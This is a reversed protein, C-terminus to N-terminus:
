HTVKPREDDTEEAAEEEDDDDTVAEPEEDEGPKKTKQLAKLNKLVDDQDMNQGTTEKKKKKAPTADDDGQLCGKEILEVLAPEYLSKCEPDQMGRFVRSELRLPLQASHEDSLTVGTYPVPPTHELCAYAMTGAAATLDFVGGINYSHLCEKDQLLARDHFWGPEKLPPRGAKFKYKTLGLKGADKM